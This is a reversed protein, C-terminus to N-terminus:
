PVFQGVTHVVAMIIRVTVIVGFITVIYIILSKGFFFYLGSLYSQFTAKYSQFDDLYDLLQSILTYLGIQNLFNDFGLILNSIFDNIM